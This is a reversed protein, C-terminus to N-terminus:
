VNRIDREMELLMNFEKRFDDVDETSISNNEVSVPIIIMNFGKPFGVMYGDSSIGIISKSLKIHYAPINAKM